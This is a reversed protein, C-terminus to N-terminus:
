FGYRRYIRTVVNSSETNESVLDFTRLLNMLGDFYPQFLASDGESVFVSHTESNNDKKYEISFSQCHYGWQKRIHIVNVAAVEFPDNAQIEKTNTM